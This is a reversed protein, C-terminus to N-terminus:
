SFDGTIKKKNRYLPVFYSVVFIHTNLGKLKSSKLCNAYGYRLDFGWLNLGVTPMLGNAHTIKNAYYIYEIGLSVFISMRISLSYGFIGDKLNNYYNGIFGVFPQFFTYKKTRDYYTYGVGAFLFNSNNNQLDGVNIGYAPYAHNTIKSNIQKFTIKTQCVSNFNFILYFSSFLLLLRM